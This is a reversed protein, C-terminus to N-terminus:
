PETCESVSVLDQGSQQMAALAPPVAVTCAPSATLWMQPHERLLM